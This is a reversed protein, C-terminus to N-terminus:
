RISTCTIWTGRWIPKTAFRINGSDANGYQIRRQCKGSASNRELAAPARLGVQDSALSGSYDADDAPPTWVAHLHDPLLVMADIAFPRRAQEHMVASRLVDVYRVLTDAYRDRLAVTFFYTAGTARSRRYNVM